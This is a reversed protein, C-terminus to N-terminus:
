GANPTPVPKPVIRVRFIGLLKEVNCRDLESLPDELRLEALVKIEEVIGVKAAEIMETALLYKIFNRTPDSKRKSNNFNDLSGTPSNLRYNLDKAKGVYLARGEIDVIIYWGPAGPPQTVPTRFQDTAHVKLVHWNSAQQLELMATKLVACVVSKDNLNIRDYVLQGRM